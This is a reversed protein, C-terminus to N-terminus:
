QRGEWHNYVEPPRVVQYQLGPAVLPRGPCVMVDPLASRLTGAVALDLDPDESLVYIKRLSGLERLYPIPNEGHGPVVYAIVPYHFFDEGLYRQACSSLMGSRDPAQFAVVSLDDPEDEYTVSSYGSRRIAGVAKRQAEARKLDVALWASVWAVLLALAFLIRITYQFWLGWLISGVWWAVTALVFLGVASVAALVAWGKQRHPWLLGFQESIWLLSVIAFLASLLLGPSVHHRTGLGNREDGPRIAASM